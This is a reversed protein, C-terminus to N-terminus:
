SDVRLGYTRITGSNMNISTTELGINFGSMSATQKLVGIGKGVRFVNAIRTSGQQLVFTYTSSSFPNFFWYVLGTAEPELDTANALYRMYTNNTGRLEGFSTEGAMDLRAFDYNSATVLSGSSNVLRVYANSHSGSDSSLNSVTVNYIDFDASFVDTVSITNASTVTTENILRLNSM